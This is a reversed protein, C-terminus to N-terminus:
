PLIRKNINKSYEQEKERSRRLADLKDGVQDGEKTKINSQNISGANNRLSSMLLQGILDTTGDSAIARGTGSLTKSATSIVNPNQSLENLGAGALAGTFPGLGLLTSLISGTGGSLMNGMSFLKNGRGLNSQKEAIKKFEFLKKLETGVDDLSRGDPTLIDKTAEQVSDQYINRQILSPSVQDGLLAKAFENNPILNDVERRLETLVDVDIRGDISFQKSQELFLEKAEQLSKAIGRNQSLAGKTGKTYEGIAKDFKKAVTEIDVSKGSRVAIEDFQDQQDAIRKLAEDAFDKTIGRKAMFDAIDDGTAKTFNTAQTPSPRLGRVVTAKGADDLANGVTKTFPKVLKQAVPKLLPSAVKLVGAAGVSMAGDQAIKLPDREGSSLSSLTGGVTANRVLGVGRGLPLAYSAAAGSGYIANDLAKQSQGSELYNKDEPTGQGVIMRATAPVGRTGYEYIGTGARVFPDTLTKTIFELPNTDQTPTQQAPRFSNPTPYGAQTPEQGIPRFSKPIAEM